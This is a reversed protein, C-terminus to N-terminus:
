KCGVTNIDDSGKIMQGDLTEGTLTASTDGCQIGTTQTNFHLIMDIDGDGDVDQLASKVPAAETGSPGFLVTTSDVTAANFTETTLIAVPIVGKSKPNISNPFSGPKIDITVAIEYEAEYSGIDCATGHPRSVGRQDMTITNGYSDTCDTIPVSDIAPSGPLLAHTPTPGGNDALPGLMPDTSNLDGTGVLGCSADSAINHGLSAPVVAYCDNGLGLTPSAVISNKVIVSGLPSFADAIADGRGQFGPPADARNEFITSNIITTTSNYLHAVTLIGGGGYGGFGTNYSITSNEVTLTGYSLIGGGDGGINGTVTSNRLRLTSGVDVALGGGGWGHRAGRITM